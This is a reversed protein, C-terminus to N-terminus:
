EWSKFGRDRYPKNGTDDPSARDVDRGNVKNYTGGKVAGKKTSNREWTRVAAKWDKMKNKGLYWDKATYFDIFQEPDIQNKREQCYAKVDELCPVLFRKSKEKKEKQSIDKSIDKKKIDTDTDTDTDNPKELFRETKESVTQNKEEGEAADEKDKTSEKKDEEEKKAPRGGQRGRERNKECKEAYARASEDLEKKIAIFAIATVPDLEITEGTTEYEFIAKLLKGAQEDSLSEILDKNNKYLIFSKKDM